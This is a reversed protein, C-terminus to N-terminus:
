PKTDTAVWIPVKAGCCQNTCSHGTAAARQQPPSSGIAITGCCRELLAVHGMSWGILQDRALLASAGVGLAKAGGPILTTVYLMKASWYADLSCAWFTSKPYQGFRHAQELGSKMQAERQKSGQLLFGVAHPFHEKTHKHDGSPRSTLTHVCTKLTVVCVFGARCPFSFSGEVAGAAEPKSGPLIDNESVAELVHCWRCGYPQTTTETMSPSWSTNAAMPRGQQETAIEITAHIMPCEASRSLTKLTAGEDQTLKNNQMIQKPSMYNGIAWFACGTNMVKEIKFNLALPEANSAMNTTKNRIVGASQMTQTGPVRSQQMIDCESAGHTIDSLQAAWYSVQSTMFNVGFPATKEERRKEERRKEERRKEERRKEERRKEERRKEERRKEERRKEERRKEERRKEESRKEERRKEERRKEKRRECPPAGAGTNVFVRFEGDSAVDDDCDADFASAEAGEGDAESARVGVCVVKNCSTGEILMLDDTMLVYM